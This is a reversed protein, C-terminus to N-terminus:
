PPLMACLSASAVAVLLLRLCLTELTAPAPVGCACAAPTWSAPTDETPNHVPAACM